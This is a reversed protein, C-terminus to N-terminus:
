CGLIMKIEAVIGSLISVSIGTTQMDTAIAASIAMLSAGALIQQVMITAVASIAVVSAGGFLLVGAILAVITAM